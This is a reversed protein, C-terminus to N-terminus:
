SKVVLGHYALEYQEPTVVKDILTQIDDEIELLNLGCIRCFNDEPNIEENECHPCKMLMVRM